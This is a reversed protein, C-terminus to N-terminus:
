AHKHWEILTTPHKVKGSVHARVRVIRIRGDRELESLLPWLNHNYGLRLCRERHTQALPDNEAGPLQWGVPELHVGSVADARELLGALADRPLEGIQEISGHTFVLMHRQGEPVATYDPAYYDFRYASVRMAPELRALLQTCLRGIGTIELALYSADRPGTALWFSFLNMGDGAGLEVVSDTDPRCAGLLAANLLARRQAAMVAPNAPGREGMWIMEHGDGLPDEGRGPETFAFVRALSTEGGEILDALQQLRENWRPEYWHHDVPGTHAAAARALANRLDQEAIFARASV